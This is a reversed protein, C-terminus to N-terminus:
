NSNDSTFQTRAFGVRREISDFVVYFRQLFVYGNVFDLGLGTPSALGKVILFIDNDGGGGHLRYNLLRPWVQANRVLKYTNEGIHFDLGRLANYQGRSIQLLGNAPNLTGGTVIKYREYADSALYLFTCGCHVIGATNRLIEVDGYTIRQNIGWYRSSRPTATIDIYKIRGLHRWRNAGGFSIEGYGYRVANTGFPQFFIGVVPQRISQQHFLYDTVTPLIVNPRNITGRTLGMPGIGLVGDFDFGVSTSAVGFPMGDISLEDTGFTISDKFITGQFSGYGYNVAVPAGTNFGTDSAYRTRAGVWTIASASDVILNYIRTPNGIGVTVTYGFHFSTLHVYDRRDHTSYETLAAILAEDHRLLDTVNSFALRRTMPLTITSNRVKVPSGTVSLALLALLFAVSFM